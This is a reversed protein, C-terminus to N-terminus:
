EAFGSGPIPLPALGRKPSLFDVHEGNEVIHSATWANLVLSCEVVSDVASIKLPIDKLGVAGLADKLFAQELATSLGPPLEVRM